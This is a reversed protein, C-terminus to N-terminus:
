LSVTGPYAVADYEEAMGAVTVQITPTCTMFAAWLLDPGAVVFQRTSFRNTRVPHTTFTTQARLDSVQIVTATLPKMSSAYFRVTGKALGKGGAALNRVQWMRGRAPGGCCLVLTGTGTTGAISIPQNRPAHNLADQAQAMARAYRDLSSTLGDLSLKLDAEIELGM